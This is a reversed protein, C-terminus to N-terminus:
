RLGQENFFDSYKQDVTKIHNVLWDKLLTMVKISLGMSGSDFDTKIQEIKKIFAKHQDVHAPADPYSYQQFLQEETSFHTRTYDLLGKLIKGMIDNGKGSRMAEHLDNIMDLWKKHQNDIMAVKVSLKDDWAVLPM